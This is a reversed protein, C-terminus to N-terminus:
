EFVVYTDSNEWEKKDGSFRQAIKDAVSRVSAAVDSDTREDMYIPRIASALLHPSEYRKIRAAMKSIDIPCVIETITKQLTKM